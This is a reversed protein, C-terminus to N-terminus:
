GSIPIALSQGETLAAAARYAKLADEIRGLQEYARARGYAALWHGYPSFSRAALEEIRAYHRLADDPREGRLALRGEIELQWLRQDPTAARAFRGAERLLAHAQPVRGAQLHALALNIRANFKQNESCNGAEDFIERARELLPSPNAFRSASGGTERAQLLSWGYNTWFQGDKCTPLAKGPPALRREPRQRAELSEFIAIAESWRGIDELALAQEQGVATQFDLLGLREAPGAAAELEDTATRLDGIKRALLGRNYAIDFVAQADMGPPPAFSELLQRATTLENSNIEYGVLATASRIEGLLQGAAHHAEMAKRYGDAQNGRSLAALGHLVDGRVEASALPLNDELIKAQTRGDGALSWAKELWPPRHPEALALTWVLLKGPVAARLEITRAGRPIELRLLRDAAAFRGIPRGDVFLELGHVERPPHLVRLRLFRLGDRGAGVVCVRGQRLWEDCGTYEVALPGTRPGCCIAWGATVLLAGKVLSRVGRPGREAM